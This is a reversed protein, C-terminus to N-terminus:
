ILITAGEPPVVIFVQRADLRAVGNGLVIIQARFILATSPPPRVDNYFDVAFEVLAGPVVGYFSTDDRSAYSDPGAGAIGGATYGEAPMVAKIFRTADFDEPNGAVNATTTTVDQPTQSVLKDIGEVIADTVEGAAADFVLPLGAEDTSGTARALAEQDDRGGGNVAVGVTRAGIGNLADVADMFTHPAPSITNYADMGTPDNHFRVDSVLVVIPLAGPRFCPHGRRLGVEDPVPACVKPALSYSLSLFTWAGGEGTAVQYLAEVQSEPNDRGDGLELADLARQLATVDDTIDQRNAYVEDSESGYSGVGPMRMCLPDERPCTYEFPFDEFQGVGLQADRVRTELEAAIRALSSRVNEIPAGMSGTTDILFYVDAKQIDTTFRLTRAAREGEYPLVVFFDDPDITDTADRPDTGTGRVEGLDTVGDDDSDRDYPDTGLTREEADGLGDNDSDTDQWNPFGDSDADPRACPGEGRHEDRDTLGDDDSDTDRDNPTGDRDTDQTGEVRDDITDGDVDITGDCGDGPGTDPSGADRVGPPPEDGKSCACMALSLLVLSLASRRLTAATMLSLLGSRRWRHLCM